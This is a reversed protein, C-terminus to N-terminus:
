HEALEAYLDALLSEDVINSSSVVYSVGLEAAAELAPLYKSPRSSDFIGFSEGEVIRVGTDSALSKIDAILQRDGVIPYRDPAHPAPTIRLGVGTFGAKGAHRVFDLPSADLATLHSVSIM